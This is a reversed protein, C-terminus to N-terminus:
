WKRTVTLDVLLNILMYIMFAQLLALFFRPTARRVAPTEMTAPAPLLPQHAHQHWHPAPVIIIRATGHPTYPSCGYSPQTQPATPTTSHSPGAGIGGAAGERLATEYSPVAEEAADAPKSSTPTPKQNTM